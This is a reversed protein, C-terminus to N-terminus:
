ASAGGTHPARPSAHEYPRGDRHAFIWRGDAALVAVLDDAPYEVEDGASRDGVELIQAAQASRNHLHHATGGAAFGACHGAELLTEGTDTVLVVRGSLVFIFEDQRRHRHHLASVSGPPLTTLNIGINTLGFLDGLPRKVRGSM